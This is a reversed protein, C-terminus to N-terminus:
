DCGVAGALGARSDGGAQKYGWDRGVSGALGVRPERWGQWDGEIGVLGTLAGCEPGAAASAGTQSRPDSVRNILLNQPKLDRHLVNRSHCFALGKLLQYM